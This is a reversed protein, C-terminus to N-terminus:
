TMHKLCVHSLCVLPRGCVLSACSSNASSRDRSLRSRSLAVDELKFLELGNDKAELQEVVLEVVYFPNTSCISFMMHTMIMRVFIAFDLPCLCSSSVCEQTKWTQSFVHLPPSFCCKTYTELVQKHIDSSGCWANVFVCTSGFMLCSAIYQASVRGDWISCIHVDMICMRVYM